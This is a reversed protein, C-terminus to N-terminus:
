AAHRRRLVLLGGIGMLVMSAPEPIYIVTGVVTDQGLMTYEFEVDGADVNLDCLIGLSVLGNVGINAFAGEAYTTNNTSIVFQLLAPSLDQAILSGSASYVQIGSASAANGDLLVEGTNLDVILDIQGPDADAAVAAASGPADYGGPAFASALNNFDTIDVDNDGDSNGKSLGNTAANAGGADFNTALNNFDTIDIDRDLDTDSAKYASGYGNDTAAVALWISLDTGNVTNNGDLDYKADAPPVAVGAVLNGVTVLADVDDIDCDGDPEFDCDPGPGFVTLPNRTGDALFGVETPTLAVDYIAYDDILGQFGTNGNKV